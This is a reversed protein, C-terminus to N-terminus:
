VEQFLRRCEMAIQDLEHTDGQVANAAEDLCQAEDLAVARVVDMMASRAYQLAKVKANDTVTSPHPAADLAQQIRADFKEMVLRLSSVTEAQTITM